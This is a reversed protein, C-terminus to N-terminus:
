QRRPRNNSIRGRSKYPQPPQQPRPLRYYCFHFSTYFTDDRGSHIVEAGQPPEVTEYEGCWHGSVDPPTLNKSPIYSHAGNPKEECLKEKTVYFSLRQFTTIENVRMQNIYVHGYRWFAKVAEYDSKELTLFCHVHLRVPQDTDNQAAETDVLEWRAKDKWPAIEWQLGDVPCANPSTEVGEGEVTYIYKLQRDQRKWEERLSRLYDTWIRQTHKRNAPLNEDNFTFTCFCSDKSDFNACLLFQLKETANKMNIFRQARNTVAQKALRVAKSDSPLSRRYRVAKCYRGAKITRIYYEKAM